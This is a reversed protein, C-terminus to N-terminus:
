GNAEVQTSIYCMSAVTIYAPGFAFSRLHLGVSGAM